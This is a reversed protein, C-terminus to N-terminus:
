TRQQGDVLELVVEDLLKVTRVGLADFLKSTVCSSLLSEVIFYYMRIFFNEFGAGESASLSFVASRLKSLLEVDRM